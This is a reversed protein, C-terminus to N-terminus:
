GYMPKFRLYITVVVKQINKDPHLAQYRATLDRELAVFRFNAPIIRCVEDKGDLTLTLALKNYTFTGEKFKRDGYVERFAKESARFQYGIVSTASVELLEQQLSAAFAADGAEVTVKGNSEDAAKVRGWDGDMTTVNVKVIAANGAGDKVTIDTKGALDSTLLLQDNEVKVQVIQANGATATYPPAIGEITVATDEGSLLNVENSSFHLPPGSTKDKKCSLCILAFM